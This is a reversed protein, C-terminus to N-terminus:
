TTWKGEWLQKARLLKCGCEEDECIHWQPAQNSHAIRGYHDHGCMCLVPGTVPTWTETITRTVVHPKQVWKSM